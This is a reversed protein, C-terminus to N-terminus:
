YDNDENLFINIKEILMLLVDLIVFFVINKSIETQCHYCLIFIILDFFIILYTIIRNRRKQKDSLPNNKNVIPTFFLIIFISVAGVVLLEICSFNESFFTLTIIAMCYMITSQVFCKESTTAHYGGSFIRLPVFFLLYSFFCIYNGNVASILFFVILLSGNLLLTEFGFIYIDREDIDIKKNKVLLFVIDEALNRFLKHM